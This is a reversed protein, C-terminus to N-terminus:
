VGIEIFFEYVDSISSNFNITRDMNTQLSMISGKRPLTIPDIVLEPTYCLFVLNFDLQESHIFEYPIMSWNIIKKIYLYYKTEDNYETYFMKEDNLIKYYYTVGSEVRQIDFDSITGDYLIEITDTNDLYVNLINLSKNRVLRSYYYEDDKIIEDGNDDTDTYNSFFSLFLKYDKLSKKLPHLISPIMFNNIILSM